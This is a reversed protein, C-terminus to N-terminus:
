LGVVVLDVCAVEEGVFGVVGGRHTECVGRWFVWVGRGVKDCCVVVFVVVQGRAAGRWLGGGRWVVVRAM